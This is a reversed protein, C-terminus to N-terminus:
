RPMSGPNLEGSVPSFGWLWEGWRDNAEEFFTHPALCGEWTKQVECRTGLICGLREIDAACEKEAAIWGRWWQVCTKEGAM